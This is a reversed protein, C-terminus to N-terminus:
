LGAQRVVGLVRGHFDVVPVSAAKSSEFLEIVEDRPAIAQISVVGPQRLDELRDGSEATVLDQLPVAGVLVGDDDILFVDSIRKKGLRRLRKIADRVTSAPRFTTARPDMIGGASDSPYAMLATLEEATEQALDAMLQSRRDPDLRALVSATKVPDLDPALARFVAPALMDLVDVAADPRLRDFLFAADAAPSQQLLEAIDKAQLTEALSAFENPYLESFRRTLARSLQDVSAM